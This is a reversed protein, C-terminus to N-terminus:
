LDRWYIHGFTGTPLSRSSMDFSCVTSSEQSNAHFNSVFCFLHKIPSNNFQNFIKLQESMGRVKKANCKQQLQKKILCIPWPIWSISRTFNASSQRGCIKLSWRRIQSRIYILNIEIGKSTMLFCYIKQHYFNIQESM